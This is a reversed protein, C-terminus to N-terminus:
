IKKMEQYLRGVPLGVVNNYDGSIGKIYAACKGQIGYAGAKDMPEGTAAYAKIEEPTMPFMTVSTEEYFSIEKQVMSKDEQWILTVGTYVQHTRGQLASLMKVANEENEPKGMIHNDLAVVTDAGIVLSQAQEGGSLKQFVDLAKLHSLEKVMESPSCNGTWYAPACAHRRKTKEEAGSPLVQFEMGIQALLERRRPSASALIIKKNNKIM